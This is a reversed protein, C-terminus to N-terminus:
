LCEIIKIKLKSLKGLTLSRRVDYTGGSTTVGGGWMGLITAGRADTIDLAGGATRGLGAVLVACLRWIESAM